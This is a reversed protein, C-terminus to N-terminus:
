PIIKLENIINKAGAFKDIVFLIYRIDVCLCRQLDPEYILDSSMAEWNGDFALGILDGKSDIVPSGSNGGSIDNNTIFCVPMTGHDGYEGFDSNNYLKKLKLPVNFEPKTSDEKEFVGTLTSFYNYKVADRPSYDQVTGYTLRMTFDADPYFKKGPEMEMLGKLYTRQLKDLKNEILDYQYYTSYFKLFISQAVHFAIDHALVKDTPRILFTSVKEKKSFISQDFMKDVFKAINGKYKHDILKYFDPLQDPLTNEKYLTLMSKVVKKDTAPSYDKFFAEAKQKLEMIERNIENKSSDSKQLLIDLYYFNFAFDIIESSELLAESIYQMNHEFPRKEAYENRIENLINSFLSIRSSDQNVWIQFDTEDKQKKEIIHLKEIGLNEGISYKCENSSNSYKAAYQINIIPSSKMDNKLIEQRATRIKIKDPNIEEFIEQIGFSTLFRNTEGPYGLVMTYDGKSIGKLSIPFYCKSKLPINEPNYEAPKGDPATYIRFISFDGSHRPWEWNDTEDGFKGISSPPAGVLRIDKYVQYVCLYYRNGAFYPKVIAEYRDTDSSDKEIQEKRQGIIIQRDEDSITDSLKGNIQDTVDEIRLLFRAELGPNPLEQDHSGAWFGDNLYNHDLTSHYQVQDFGCHHNTFLLGEESVMAGTCGEGFIIVADKLSSHNINYIDDASLACGLGKMDSINLQELLPLLWMGEDAKLEALGFVAVYTMILFVRRM